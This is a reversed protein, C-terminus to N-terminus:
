GEDGTPWGVPIFGVGPAMPALTFPMPLAGAPLMVPAMPAPAPAPAPAMLPGPPIPAPAPAPPPEMPRGQYPQDPGAPPTEAEGAKEVTVLLIDHFIM